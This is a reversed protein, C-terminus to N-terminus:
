IDSKKHHNIHVINKVGNKGGRMDEKYPTPEFIPMWAIVQGQRKRKELDDVEWNYIFGNSKKYGHLILSGDEHTTWYLLTEDEPLRESCPIWNDVKPQENICKIIAKKYDQLFRMIMGKGRAVGAIFFGANEIEEILKKENIM